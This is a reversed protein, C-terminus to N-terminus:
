RPHLRWSWVGYWLSQRSSVGESTVSKCASLIPVSGCLCLLCLHCSQLSSGPCEPYSLNQKSWRVSWDKGEEVAETDFLSKHAGLM